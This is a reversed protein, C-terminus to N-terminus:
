VKKVLLKRLRAGIKRKSLLSLSASSWLCITRSIMLLAKSQALL